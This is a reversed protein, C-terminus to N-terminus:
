GLLFIDAQADYTVVSVGTLLVQFDSAAAFSGDGDLDFQLASGTFRVNTLGPSFDTGIAVNGARSGLAAGAVQLSAEVSAAFDLRDGDAAAAIVSDVAGAAIDGDGLDTATWVFLDSGSEGNLTDNGYGGILTDDGSGGSLWDNGEGGELRNTGVTGSINDNGRTGIVNEINSLGDLDVAFDARGRWLAISGGTDRYSYDVTDSGSGGNLYDFGEGGSMVDDGDGGAITDSGGGGIITDNAGGGTLSDNGDTGIIVRGGVADHLLFTKTAVEYTVASIGSLLIQFDGASEFANSGNLDIQLASGTFRLNTAGPVFDGGIAVDNAAAALTVGDVRLLGEFASTFDLRDGDAAAAVVSDAAGAAIDGGAFATATWVFTDVGADGIMTDNGAGGWLRDDGSGGALWDNGNGGMLTDNGDDGFLTDAGGAGVISDRGSGGLVRDNGGGANITDDDDGGSITDSGSGATLTDNGAGGLLSNNGGAGDISDNGAAGDITDAGSGPKAGQPSRLVTGSVTGPTIIEDASTGTFTGV